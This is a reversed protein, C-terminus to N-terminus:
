VLAIRATAPWSLSFRAWYRSIAAKACNPLSRSLAVWSCSALPSRSVSISLCGWYWGMGMSSCTTAM